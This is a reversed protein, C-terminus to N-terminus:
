ILGVGLLVQNTTVSRELEPCVLGENARRFYAPASATRIDASAQRPDEGGQADPTTRRARRVLPFVCEPGSRLGGPRTRNRAPGAVSEPAPEGRHGRARWAAQRSRSAAAAPTM